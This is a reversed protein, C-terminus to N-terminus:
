AWHSQRSGSDFHGKWIWRNCMFSFPLEMVELNGEALVSAPELAHPPPLPNAFMSPARAQTPLFTGYGGFKSGAFWQWCKSLCVLVACAGQERGKANWIDSSAQTVATWPVICCVDGNWLFSCLLVILEAGKMCHQMEDSLLAFPLSSSIQSENPM